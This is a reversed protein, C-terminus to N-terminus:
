GPLFFLLRLDAARGEHSPNKWPLELTDRDLGRSTFYDYVGSESFMLEAQALLLTNLLLLVHLM